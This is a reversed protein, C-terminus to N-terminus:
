RRATAVGANMEYTGITRAAQPTRQEKVHDINTGHSCSRVLAVCWRVRRQRARYSCRRRQRQRGRPQARHVAWGDLLYTNVHGRAATKSTPM